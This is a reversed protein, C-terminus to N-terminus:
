PTFELTAFLTALALCTPAVQRRVLNFWWKNTTPDNALIIYPNVDDIGITGLLAPTHATLTNIVHIYVLKVIKNFKFKICHFIVSLSLEAVTLIEHDSNGSVLSPMFKESVRLELFDTQM